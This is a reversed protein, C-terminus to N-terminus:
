CFYHWYPEAPGLLKYKIFNIGFRQSGHLMGSHRLSKMIIGYLAHLHYAIRSELEYNLGPHSLVTKIRTIIIASYSRLFLFYFILRIYSYAKLLDAFLIIRQIIIM